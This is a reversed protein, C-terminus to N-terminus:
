IVRNEWTYSVRTYLLGENILSGRIYSVRTYLLGENILSGQSFPGKHKLAGRTHFVKM